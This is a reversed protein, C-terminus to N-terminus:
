SPGSAFANPGEDNKLTERFIPLESRAPSIEEDGCPALKWIKRTLIVFGDEKLRSLQPSLSTRAFNSGLRYNITFLITLADMGEPADELTKLIARKIIGRPQRREKTQRVSRQDKSTEAAASEARALRLREELLAHLQDRLAEEAEAIEQRRRAIFESLTELM